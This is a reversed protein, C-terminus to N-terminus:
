LPIGMANADSLSHGTLLPSKRNRMRIKLGPADAVTDREVLFRLVQKGVRGRHLHTDGAACSPVGERLEQIWRLMEWNSMRRNKSFRNGVLEQLRTM